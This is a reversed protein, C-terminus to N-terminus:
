PEVLRVGPSPELRLSALFGRMMDDFLADFTGFAQDLRDYAVMCLLGYVQRWFGVVAHVVGVPVDDAVGPADRLLVVRYADLEAALGPGVDAPFPVGARWLAAFAPLFVAGLRHVFHPRGPGTGTGQGTGAAQQADAGLLFDFENRHGRCWVFLAHTAAHLRAVPDDDPQRAVVADLYAALEDMTDDYVAVLLGPRGDFYRYMGPGAIGVEKAVAVMTVGDVGHEALLRRAASRAEDLLEARLRQRRTPTAPM